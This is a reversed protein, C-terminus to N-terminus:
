NFRRSRSQRQRMPRLREPEARAAILLDFTVRPTEVRERLKGINQEYGAVGNMKFEAM